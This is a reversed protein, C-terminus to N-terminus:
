KYRVTWGVLDQASLRGVGRAHRDRGRWGKSGVGGSRGRADWGRAARGRVVRCRAGVEKVGRRGWRRASSGAIGRAAGGYALAGAEEEWRRERWHGQRRAPSRRTRRCGAGRGGVNRGGGGMHRMFYSLFDYFSQPFCLIVSLVYFSQASHCFRFFSQAFDYSNSIFTVFHNLFIV